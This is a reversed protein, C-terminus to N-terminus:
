VEEEATPLDPTCAWSCGRRMFPLPYFRQGPKRGHEQGRTEAPKCDWWEIWRVKDMVYSKGCVSCIKEGTQRVENAFSLLRVIPDQYRTNSVSPLSSSFSSGPPAMIEDDEIFRSFYPSRSCAKLALDRLSPTNTPIIRQRDVARGEMDFYEPASTAVHIPKWKELVESSIAPANGNESERTNPDLAIIGGVETNIHWKVVESQDLRLFRNPYLTINKLVGHEQMLGLLEWPLYRLKNGGVNLEQLLTLKRIAGPIETLKNQRLSLFRINVLDFVEKPVYTLLNRTLYLQLSPELPSFIQASAGHELVTPQKTLQALPPLIHPPITGMDLYSLDVRDDGEDLCTNIIQRAKAHATSETSRSGKAVPSKSSGETPRDATEPVPFRRSASGRTTSAPRGTSVGMEECFVSDDSGCTFVAASEDGDDTTDTSGLWVGSDVNRKSKFGMRKTRKNQMSQLEKGLKQGWWTGRYRRKRGIPGEPLGDEADEKATTDYNELASSQFDDSSFLPPDSSPTGSSGLLKNLSKSSTSSGYPFHPRTKSSQAAVRIKRNLRPPSPLPPDSDM